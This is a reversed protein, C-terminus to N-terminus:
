KVILEVDGKAKLVKVHKKKAEKIGLLLAEYKTTNNINEFVLKYSSPFTQSTPSILVVGAGSGSSCCSEDFELMWPFDM